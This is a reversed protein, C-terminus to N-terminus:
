FTLTPAGFQINVRIARYADGAVYHIRASVEDDQAVNTAHAAGLDSCHVKGNATANVGLSCTLPTITTSGDTHIIKVELQGSTDSTGIGLADVTLNGIQGAAPVRVGVDTDPTQADDCEGSTWRGLNYLVTAAPGRSQAIANCVGSLNGSATTATQANVVFPSAASAQHTKSNLGLLRVPSWDFVISHASASGGGPASMSGGGGCSTIFVITLFSTLAVTGIFRAIKM